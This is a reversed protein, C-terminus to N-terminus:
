SRPAPATMPAIEPRPFALSIETGPAGRLELTGGLQRGLQHMLKLGLSRLRHVELGPPLGVGDDRVTLRHGESTSALEISIHGHREGPFGHKLSNSIAETVILGCPIAQDIPLQSDGGAEVSVAVRGEAAGYAKLLNAALTQVYAGFGVQSLDDSRYLHEHVLALAAIRAQSETVFVVLEPDTRGGLQLRMMSSVVQLNNKVRHHIERLLAEKERLAAEIRAAAEREQTVDRSVCMVERQGVPVVLTEWIGPLGGQGPAELRQPASTALAQDIAVRLRARVAPDISPIDELTKGVLDAPPSSLPAGGPVHSDLVRGEHDLRFLVFPIAALLAASRAESRSLALARMRVRADLEENLARLEAESAQLAEVRAGLEEALMNLGVVVADLGDSAPSPVGRATLDGGALRVLLEIIADVRADTM